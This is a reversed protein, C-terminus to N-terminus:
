FVQPAPAPNPAPKADLPKNELPKAEPPKAEGPKPEDVVPDDLGLSAIGQGPQFEEFYLEGDVTVVGPPMDRTVTPVGQLAGQMYGIWIPLALGGGTEKVGLPRPQDFGVWGVGVLGGSYGAFWADRSDNTTGTKGAVDDRHLAQAGAATGIRAVDRLMSDIVYATRADLVRPATDGAVQPHAEMLVHGGSDTIRRIIYPHVGFGGNALISYAGLEQWLTVSGAGLAMTLYPPHREPDFGFRAIYKQAYHPDIAQLVRISVLNKSKALGQRLRMPGEFTGDFDKPDWVEDGTLAPDLHLPADNVLTSTMVGRELAAAYIFPKLSSGPQRWGQVVHDFKNQNFDFGGVLARVAGDRSDASVFAAQVQPLQVISWSDKPGHVIRVLSGPVIRRNAAARPNLWAAAFKLGEGEVRVIHNGPLRAKVLRPAVEMVIAAQYDAAEPAASLASEIRRERRPSDEGMEITREPGRYGYRQDYAEVQARLAQVALQQDGSSITTYVNLGRSYTEDKFQEFVLQRALEAVYDARVRSHTQNAVAGGSDSRAHLEEHLAADYAKADIFGLAVMRGLVYRQRTAAGKPDALPNGTHPAKPLGALMACEGLTLDALSKGFYTQAAAAFGYAHRGLYIQNLYVEFIRDKSLSEEIKLALAAEYVKRVYRKESTLFFTRAVQMTITSAGQSKHLSLANSLAARVVGTWEVGGHHYFNSDEAALIAQRLAVPVEALTVPSRKEEGFEGLLVGDASWVRLPIKPRYDTLAEISPLKHYAISFVVYGLFAAGAGAASVALLGTGLLRALDSRAWHRARGAWHALPSDLPHARDPPAGNPRRPGIPYRVRGLSTSANGAGQRSTGPCGQVGM